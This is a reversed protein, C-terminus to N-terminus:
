KARSISSARIAGLEPTQLVEDLPAQFEWTVGSSPYQLQISANLAYEAMSVMVTYGFGQRSPPKPKPGGHEAWRMHFHQSECDKDLNWEISVHGGPTSLAGYKVSNTALEHLAMGLTQAAEAQIELAPGRLEARRGTLDVFPYAAVHLTQVDVGEWGSKGIISARPCSRRDPRHLSPLVM